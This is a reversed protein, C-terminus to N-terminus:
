KVKFPPAHPRASITVRETITRALALSATRHTTLIRHKTLFSLRFVIATKPLSRIAVIIKRREHREIDARTDAYEPYSSAGPKITSARKKSM